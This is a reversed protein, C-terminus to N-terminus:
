RRSSLSLNRSSVSMYTWILPLASRPLGGGEDSIKISFPVPWFPLIDVESGKCSRSDPRRM